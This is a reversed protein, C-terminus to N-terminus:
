TAVQEEPPAHTYLAPFLPPRHPVPPVHLSAPTQLWHLQEGSVASHLTEVHGPHPMAFAAGPVGQLLPLAVTQLSAPEHTAHLTGVSQGAGGLAQVIAAHTFLIHPSPAALGFVGHLALPPLTQLVVAWHTIHVGDYRWAHEPEVGNQLMPPAHTSHVVLVWHGPEVGYQM